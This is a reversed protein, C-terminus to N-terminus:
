DLDLLRVQQTKELEKIKKDLSSMKSAVSKREKELDFIACRLEELESDIVSCKERLTNREEELLNKNVFTSLQFEGDCSLDLNVSYESVKSPIVSDNWKKIGLISTLDSGFVIISKSYLDDIRQFSKLPQAIGESDRNFFRTKGVRFSLEGNFMILNKNSKLFRYDKVPLMSDIDYFICPSGVRFDGKKIAVPVLRDKGNSSVRVVAHDIIDAEPIRTISDIIALSVLSM